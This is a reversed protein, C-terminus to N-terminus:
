REGNVIRRKGEEEERLVVWLVNLAVEAVAV